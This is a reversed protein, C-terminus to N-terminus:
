LWLESQELYFVSNASKASELSAELELPLNGPQTMRQAKHLEKRALLRQCLAGVAHRPQLHRDSNGWAGASLFHYITHEFVRYRM